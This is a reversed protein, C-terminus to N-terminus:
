FQVKLLKVNSRFNNQCSYYVTEMYNSIILKVLFHLSGCLISSIKGNSRM